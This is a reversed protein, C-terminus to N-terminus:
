PAAVEYRATAGAPTTCLIGFRGGKLAADELVELGGECAALARGEPRRFAVTVVPSDGVVAIRRVLLPTLSDVGMERLSRPSHGLHAGRYDAARDVLEFIERGLLGADRAPDGARRGGGREPGPAGRGCAAALVFGLLACTAAASM